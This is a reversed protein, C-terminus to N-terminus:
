LVHLSVEEVLVSLVHPCGANIPVTHQHIELDLFVGAKACNHDSLEM